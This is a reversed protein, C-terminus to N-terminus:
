TCKQLETLLLASLHGSKPASKPATKRRIKPRIKSPNEFVRLVGPLVCTRSPAGPPLKLGNEVGFRGRFRGWFPVGFSFFGHGNSVGRFLDGGPGWRPVQGAGAVGHGWALTMDVLLQLNQLVHTRVRAQAYVNCLTHVHALILADSFSLSLQLPFQAQASVPLAFKICM